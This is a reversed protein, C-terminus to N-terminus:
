PRGCYTDRKANNVRIGQVTEPTDGSASYTLGSWVSCVGKDTATTSTTACNTLIPLVCLM